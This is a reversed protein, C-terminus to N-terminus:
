RRAGSCLAAAPLAHLSPQVQPVTPAGPAQAWICSAAKPELKKGAWSRKDNSIVSSGRLDMQLQPKFPWGELYSMAPQTSNLNISATQERLNTTCMTDKLFM